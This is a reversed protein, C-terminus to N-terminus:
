RLHHGGPLRQLPPAAARVSVLTGGPRLLAPSRALVEGSITDFVLDARGAADELRDEELAVFRDAGLELVQSRSHSRGTGIVETDLRSRIGAANDRHGGM